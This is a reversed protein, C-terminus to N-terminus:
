RGPRDRVLLDIREDKDVFTAEPERVQLADVGPMGM